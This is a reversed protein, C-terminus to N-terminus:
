MNPPPSGKRPNADASSPAASDPRSGQQTDPAGTAGGAPPTGQAPPTAPRGGRPAAQAASIPEGTPLRHSMVTSRTLHRTGRIFLSVRQLAEEYVVDHSYVELEEDLLDPLDISQMQITRETPSSGAIDVGVLACSEQKDTLAVTFSAAPPADPTDGPVQLTISFLDGPCSTKWDVASLEITVPRKGCRLSLLANPVNSTESHMLQYVDETPEWGLRSALWGAAFLAQARNVAGRHDTPVAYEIEVHAVQDLYPRMSPPDFFGAVMERWPTLRGWNMDTIAIKPWQSRVGSAMKILTGEANEFTSSDVILRNLSDALNRFIYEDFPDGEPWWLFVPLDPLILPIVAAPIRRASEGGAAVSVQECCVQRGGAPPLQCHISVWAQVPMDEEAPDTLAVIVRCPHRGTIREIAGVYDNAKKYSPARIILNLVQATTVAQTGGTAQAAEAVDRWLEVLQAEVYDVAVPVPAGSDITNDKPDQFVPANEEVNEEIAEPDLQPAAEKAEQATLGTAENIKQDSM